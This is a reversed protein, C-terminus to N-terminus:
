LRAAVFEALELVRNSYGWENDYWALVKIMRDGMQRIFPGDVISSHPNGSFDVSVLEEETYQLIGKLPGSAASRFANKVSEVSTTKGLEAVLDVLSVTATPVRVAIGDLKGQLQPLV